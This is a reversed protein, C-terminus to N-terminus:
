FHDVRNMRLVWGGEGAKLKYQIEIMGGTPKDNTDQDQYVPFRRALSTEVIQFEDHGRYGKFAMADEDLPPLYIETLSKKKNASYAILSGYASDGALTMFVYVEPSDDVNIDAVEVATITGKINREIPNNEKLLGRPQIRLTKSSAQHSVGVEFSVGQLERSVETIENSVAHAAFCCAMTLTLSILLRTTHTKM